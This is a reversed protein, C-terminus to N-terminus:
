DPADFTFRDAPLATAVAWDDQDWDFVAVACTPMRDVRGDSLQEALLSMGPDHAVLLVAPLETAAATRLLTAPSAGYLDPDLTVAVGLATRFADATTRARLATSSVITAPAFGTAALRLAAAPADRM